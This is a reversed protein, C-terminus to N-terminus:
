QGSGAGSEDGEGDRRPAGAAGHPRQRRRARRADDDVAADHDHGRRRRRRASVSAADPWRMMAERVDHVNGAGSPATAAEHFRRRRRSPMDDREGIAAGAGHAESAGGEDDGRSRHRVGRRPLASTTPFASLRSPLARRSCPRRLLSCERYMCRQRGCSNTSRLRGDIRDHIRSRKEESSRSSSMPNRAFPLGLLYNVPGFRFPCSLVPAIRRRQPFNSRSLDVMGPMHGGYQRDTRVESRQWPPRM